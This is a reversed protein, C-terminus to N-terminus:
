PATGSNPTTPHRETQVPLVFRYYSRASMAHAEALPRGTGADVLQSGQSEVEAVLIARGARLLSTMDICAQYDFPLGALQGGAAGYFMMLELINAASAGDHPSAREDGTSGGSVLRSVLAKASIPSLREDITVTEGPPIDNLRWAWIGYLLRPNHLALGTDNTLEGTVMGSDDNLDSRILERVPSAWTATLSKTAGSLVPVGVLENAGAFRYGVPAVGVDIARARMGGIGAGSLGQWSLRVSDDIADADHSFRADLHLDFRQAHPSYLGAWYTGRARRGPIDVDIIELQNVAAIASQQRSNSLAIAVASFGAVMLPLTLWALLPRRLWRHIVFYDVPGLLVLYLVILGTVSGFSVREVGPFSRGLQQRFAGSLDDYGATVLARSSDDTRDSAILPRLVARILGSRGQWDALPPRSLDLGVFTVQGFGHPARIVLPFQGASTGYFEVIGKVKDLQAVFLQGGSRPVVTESEAYRELSGTEPLRVRNVFAGPIFTELTRGTGPLNGTGDSLLVLRGGLRVWEEIAAFRDRDAALKEIMEGDGAHIVLLDVEEYDFWEVPLQSVDNIFVTARGGRGAQPPRDAIAEDLGFPAAAFTVILEATAPLLRPSADSLNPSAESPTLIKEDVVVSDAILRVRIPSDLRGVKVRLLAPGDPAVPQSVTTPVADSDITVAEITLQGDFRGRDVDVWLPTWYGAKYHGEFGIRCGTIRPPPDDVAGWTSAAPALWVALCFLPM